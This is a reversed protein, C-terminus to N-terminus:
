ENNDASLVVAPKEMSKNNRIKNKADRAIAILKYKKDEYSKHWDKKLSRIACNVDHILREKKVTVDRRIEKGGKTTYLLIMLSSIAGGATLGIIFNRATSKSM